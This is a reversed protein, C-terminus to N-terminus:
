YEKLRKYLTKLSVGLATAALRKNGSYHRLTAVITERQVEALPTGVFFNLNGERLTPKRISFNAMCEDIEQTHTSLTSARQVM